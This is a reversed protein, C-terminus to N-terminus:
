LLISLFNETNLYEKYNIVTNLGAPNDQTLLKGM